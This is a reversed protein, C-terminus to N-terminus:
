SVFNNVCEVIRQIEEDTLAQHCPLSLEEQHIAETIPFHLQNWERYCQQQHPPIPYHIVTHIGNVQLHNQLRDRQKSRLPYIHYVNDASPASVYPVKVFKNTIHLDYYRAITKRRENEKDLYPLKVNLVAAQIEDMRSNKGQYPFVYKRSSGYNGLAKVINALEEDNTTVAGADGLAGLNKGPYFSHAAANGLAGTRVEGYLCGHAQANDEILLLGEQRCFDAIGETYACRGYLHVLMLAKTRNTFAQRLLREDLQLTDPNPEVLVPCLGCATISLISAIYTNAPVLVEDGEKLKGMEKYGMLILTLADLGNGCTVCYKTGIYSAYDSEFRAIEKGQLYQGSNVVRTVAENIEDAHLDTISKLSLYEITEM